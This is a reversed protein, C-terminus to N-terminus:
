LIIFAALVGAIAGICNLLVAAPTGFRGPVLTQYWELTIGLGTSLSFAVSLRLADSEIQELTWAFLFAMAAYLAIHMFRQLLTPTTAIMRVLFSSGTQSKGPTVSLVIM